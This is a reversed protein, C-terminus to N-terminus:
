AAVLHLNTCVDNNLTKNLTDSEPPENRPFGLRKSEPSVRLVQVIPIDLNFNRTFPRQHFLQDLIDLDPGSGRLYRVQLDLPLLWRILVCMKLYPLVM